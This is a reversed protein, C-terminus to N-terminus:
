SASYGHVHLYIQICINIHVHIYNNKNVAPRWLEKILNRIIKGAEIGRTHTGFILCVVTAEEEVLKGEPSPVSVKPGGAGQVNYTYIAGTGIFLRYRHVYIYRIYTFFDPMRM